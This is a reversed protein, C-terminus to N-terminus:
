YGPAQTILTNGILEVTPIPFIWKESTVALNCPTAGGCDRTDRVIGVNLVDRMRKIDLYRQGEFCMEIRRELKIDTLATVLNGTYDPTTLGSNRIARIANIDAMAAAWQQQRANAEARLLYMEAIRMVKYDNIYQTDANPPYKNIGYDEDAFSSGAGDPAVNIDLRVGGDAVLIDYFGRSIAIFNNDEVSATFRFNGAVSNNAGQVNDYKWIVETADTDGAYMAALQTATALPYKGILGTALTVATGYNGTWLALRARQFTIFDDTPYNIDTSTILAAADTFDQEILTLVEGTTLRDGEADTTVTNQYVVGGSSNDQINIGYYILLESHLYGRLALLQGRINNYTAGEGTGPTINESAALVRNIRNITNYRDGWTGADGGDANLVQRLTNDAQGGSDKGRIGNDGFATNFQVVNDANLGSLVARLGNQLDSVTQYATADVLSDVPFRELQDSCSSLFFLSTLIPLLFYKKM